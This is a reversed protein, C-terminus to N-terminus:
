YQLCTLMMARWFSSIRMTWALMSPLIKDLMRRTRPHQKKAPPKLYGSCFKLEVTADVIDDSMVTAVEDSIMGAVKYATKDLLLACSSLMMIRVRPVDM